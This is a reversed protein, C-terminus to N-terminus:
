DGLALLRTRKVSGKSIVVVTQPNPTPVKPNVHTGIILELM